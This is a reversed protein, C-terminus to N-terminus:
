GVSACRGLTLIDDDDDVHENEGDNYYDFQLRDLRVMGFNCSGNGGLKGSSSM